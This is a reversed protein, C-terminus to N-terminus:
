SHAIRRAHQAAKRVGGPRDRRARLAGEPHGNCAGRVPPGPADRSLGGVRLRSCVPGGDPARLLDDLARTRLWGVLQEVVYASRESQPALTAGHSRLMKLLILSGSARPALRGASPACTRRTAIGAYARPAHVDGDLGDDRENGPHEDERHRPQEVVDDRDVEDDDP